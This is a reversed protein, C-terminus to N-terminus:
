FENMIQQLPNGRPFQIESRFEINVVHVVDRVVGSVTSKGIAFQESCILLSAGQVLKYLACAIRVRVPVVKRYKTDQREYHPALLTSMSFIAAKTFRFNAVWKDDSYEHLLFQSFWATSRPLVWFGLEEDLITRAHALRFDHLVSAIIANMDVLANHVRTAHSSSPGENSSSVAADGNVMSDVVNKLLVVIAPLFEEVNSPDCPDAM